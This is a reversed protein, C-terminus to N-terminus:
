GCGLHKLRFNSKEGDYEEKIPNEANLPYICSSGLNIIKIKNKDIISELINTNIKLNEILFEVRQTNNAYIGGVKAAAIIIVDPDISQIYNKTEDFNFLNTDQRTSPIVSFKDDSSFIKKCSSGVLGNSGFILIKQKNKM